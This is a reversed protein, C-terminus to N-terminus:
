PTPTGGVTDVRPSPRTSALDQLVAAAAARGALAAMPVGPGPHTSGGAVYLGPVRTRSGPRRFSAQWGHSAPGYLAGGTGPYSAEFDSPTTVITNKPTRTVNLGCRALRDFTREECAEIERSEFTHTDGIAPANVLCLLREAREGSASRPHELPRDQACVYVTPERPLRSQAFVDDFELRYDDCFFVNHRELPFGDTPGHVAWTVASLSRPATAARRVSRQVGTGFRGQVLAACDANSVVAKSEIREGSDLRVGCARGAATEIRDVRAGYRIRAGHRVALEALARAIRHMGGNVLWVGEREVHAVLM